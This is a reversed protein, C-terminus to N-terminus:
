LRYLLCYVPFSQRYLDFVSFLSSSVMLRHPFYGSTMNESGVTQLASKVYSHASPIFLSPRKIKSMNTCVFYPNVSQFFLTFKILLAADDTKGYVTSAGTVCVSSYVTSLDRTPATHCLETSRAAMFVESVTDCFTLIM